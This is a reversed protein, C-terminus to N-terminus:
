RALPPPRRALGFAAPRSALPVVARPRPAGHRRPPRLRPVSDLRAALLTGLAVLGGDLLSALAGAVLALPLALWGGAALVAALGSPHGALLAGELLEQTSFVAFVTLAYLGARAAFSRAVPGSGADRHLVARLVGAALAALALAVLVPLAEVLYAHGHHALEDGADAGFALRYRLEHVALAALAILAASRPLAGPSRLMRM